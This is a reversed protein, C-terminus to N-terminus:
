LEVESAAAEDAGEASNLEILIDQGSEKDLNLKTLYGYLLVGLTILIAIVATILVGDVRKKPKRPHRINIRPDRSEETAPDFSGNGGVPIGGGGSLIVTEAEAAEDGGVAETRVASEYGDKFEEADEDADEGYLASRLLSKDIRVPRQFNGREPGAAEAEGGVGESEPLAGEDSHGSQGSEPLVGGACAESRLDERGSKRCAGAASDDSGSELATDFTFISSADMGIGNEEVYGGVADGSGNGGAAHIYSSDPLPEGSMEQAQPLEGEREMEPKLSYRGGSFSLVGIGNVLVSGKAALENKLAAAYHSVIERAKDESIGFICVVSSVLMGDDARLLDTFVVEDNDRKIFAGVGPVVVRRSGKGFIRCIANDVM